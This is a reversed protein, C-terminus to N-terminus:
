VVVPQSLNVVGDLVTYVKGNTLTVKVSWVYQRITLSNTDDPILYFYIEGNDAAGIAGQAATATTKTLTAAAADKSTKWTMVAVADTLDIPNQDKDKVYVIMTRDDGAYMYFTEYPMNTRRPYNDTYGTFEEKWVLLGNFALPTSTM